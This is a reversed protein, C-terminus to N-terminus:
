HSAIYARTLSGFYGSAPSIGVSKQFEILAAKTLKGFYGSAGSLKLAIAASGKGFKILLNQLATVDAGHTGLKLDHM